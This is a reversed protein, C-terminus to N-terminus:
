EATWDKVYGSLFTQVNLVKTHIKAQTPFLDCILHKGHETHHRAGRKFISQYIKILFILSNSRLGKELSSVFNQTGGIREMGWLVNIYFFTKTDITKCRLKKM